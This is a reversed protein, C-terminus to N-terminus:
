AKTIYPAQNGGIVKTKIPVHKNLVNLANHFTEYNVDVVDVELKGRLELKFDEENFNKYNRYHVYKPSAKTFKTKLVTTVLELHDSISTEFVNTRQFSGPKDTVILHVRSPNEISKFCNKNKVINKANYANLFESFPKIERCTLTM